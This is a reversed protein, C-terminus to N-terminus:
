PPAPDLGDDRSAPDRAVPAYRRRSGLARGRRGVPDAGVGVGVATGGSRGSGKAVPRPSGDGDVSTRALSFDAVAAAVPLTVAVIAAAVVGDLWFHNGTVVVVFMTLAAHASTLVRAARSGTTWAAAAFLVAWGVHISPMASLHDSIGPTAGYVSQGLLAATDVTRTEAVLRPPATSALHLLLCIGTFVVLAARTAVYRDRHRLWLWALVVDVSVWHAYAYYYNAATLLARHGLFPQQITSEAPLHLAQEAAYILRARSFAGAPHPGVIHGVLMWLGFLGVIIGCERVAAGLERARFGRSLLVGVGALVAAIVGATAWTLQLEPV